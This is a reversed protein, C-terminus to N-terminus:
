IEELIGKLVKLFEPVLCDGCPRLSLDGGDDRVSVRQRCFGCDYMGHKVEETM